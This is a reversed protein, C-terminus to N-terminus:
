SQLMALRVAANALAAVGVAELTVAPGVQALLARTQQQIAIPQYRVTDRVWAVLAQGTADLRPSTLASLAADVETSGVGESRLVECMEQECFRCELARAVVAFMMAKTVKPIVPSAFAEDLAEQLLEAAPLGRLPLALPSLPDEQRGGDASPDPAAKRLQRVILPRILRGLWNVAMKELRLEPPCALFTAVRNRACYSAIMFAMEAVALPSFGLAVLQERALRGPRPNSRALNRCFQIFAREREALEALRAQQEIKGILEEGYGLIRMQARAAGYCYRCSHEQSTVLFGIDVLRAPLHSFRYSSWSLVLKRLWPSPAVRRVFEPVAGLTRKVEADWQPDPTFPLIPESWEIDALNTVPM